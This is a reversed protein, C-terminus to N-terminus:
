RSPESRAGAPRIATAACGTALTARPVRALESLIRAMRVLVDESGYGESVRQGFESLVEYPTALEGYVLRNAVRQARRRM